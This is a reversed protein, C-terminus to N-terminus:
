GRGIDMWSINPGITETGSPNEKMWKELFEKNEDVEDTVKIEMHEAIAELDAFDLTGAIYIVCSTEPDALILYNVSPGDWYYYIPNEETNSYDISLRLRSMGRWTDYEESLIEGNFFYICDPDTSTYVKIQYLMEGNRRYPRDPDTYYGDNQIIEWYPIWDSTDVPKPWADHAPYPLQNLKYYVMGERPEEFDFTIAYSANPYEVKRYKISGNEQKIKLIHTFESPDDVYRGVIAGGAAAATVMLLAAVIAAILLVRPKPHHRPKQETRIRALTKAKVAETNIEATLAMDEATCTDMLDSIPLKM